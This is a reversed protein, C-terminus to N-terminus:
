EKRARKKEREGDRGRKIEREKEKERKKCITSVPPSEFSLGVTICNRDIALLWHQVVSEFLVPDSLAGSTFLGAVILGSFHGATPDRGPDM